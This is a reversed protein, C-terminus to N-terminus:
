ALLAHVRKFLFTFNNFIRFLSGLFLYLRIRDIRQFVDYYTTHLSTCRKSKNQFYFQIGYMFVAPGIEILFYNQFTQLLM